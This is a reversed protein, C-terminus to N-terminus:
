HAFTAEGVLATSPPAATEAVPAIKGVRTQVKSGPQALQTGVIVIRDTPGTVPGHILRPMPTVGALGLM